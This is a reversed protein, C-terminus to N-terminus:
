FMCIEVYLYLRIMKKNYFKTETIKNNLIQFM